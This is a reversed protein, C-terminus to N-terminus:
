RTSAISVSLVRLSAFASIAPIRRRTSRRIQAAASPNTAVPTRSVTKRYTPYPHHLLEPDVHVNQICGVSSNHRKPTEM